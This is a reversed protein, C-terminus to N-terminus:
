SNSEDLIEQIKSDRNLIKFFQDQLQRFKPQNNYRFCYENFLTESIRMLEYQGKNIFGQELQRELWNIYYKYRHDNKISM